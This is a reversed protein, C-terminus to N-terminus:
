EFVFEKMQYITIKARSEQRLQFRWRYDCWVVGVAECAQDDLACCVVGKIEQAADRRVGDVWGGDLAQSGIPLM